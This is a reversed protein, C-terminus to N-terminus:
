EKINPLNLISQTFNQKSAKYLTITQFTLEPQNLNNKKKIKAKLM